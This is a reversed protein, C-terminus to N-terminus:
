CKRHFENNHFIPFTQQIFIVSHVTKTTPSACVLYALAHLKTV